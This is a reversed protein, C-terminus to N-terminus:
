VILAGGDVAFSHGVVYSAEDSCLWTIAAAVEDPEALRGLPVNSVLASGIEPSAEMFQELMPTRMPGPCIANIRVGSKAYAAAAAKTLGIVGHKSAVYAPVHAMGKFGGGASSTNVIVGQGQDLMPPIEHRLSIFVGTLNVDLVNGWESLTYEGIPKAPGNIGANNVAIDLRGFAKLTAAIAAAVSDDNSVDAQVFLAAGPNGDCEAVTIEGGQKDQDAIVVDAGGRAFLRAVSRGLGSGGGTVFAVRGLFQQNLDAL